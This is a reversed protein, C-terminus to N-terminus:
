QRRPAFVRRSKTQGQTPAVHRRDQLSQLCDRLVDLSIQNQAAISQVARDVEPDDVRMGSERASSLMVREDILADLAQRRLETEPPAKGNRGLEALVREVRREVEGATVLEQNVIVAIYDGNRSAAGRGQAAALPGAVLAAALVPAAYLPWRSRSETM